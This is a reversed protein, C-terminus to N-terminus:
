EINGVGSGKDKNRLEKIRTEEKIIIKKAETPARYEQRGISGIKEVLADTVAFGASAATTSKSIDSTMGAAMTGFTLGAGGSVITETWGSAMDKNANSIKSKLEKVKEDYGSLFDDDAKAAKREKTKEEKTKQKEATQALNQSAQSLNSTAQNLQALVAAVAATDSSNRSTSTPANGTRIANVGDDKYSNYLEKYEEHKKAYQDYKDAGNKYKEDRTDEYKEKSGKHINMMNQSEIMGQKAEKMSTLKDEVGDIKRSEPMSWSINSGEGQGVGQTGGPLGGQPNRKGDVRGQVIGKAKELDKLDKKAERRTKRAGNIKKFNGAVRNTAMKAMALTAMTSGYTESVGKLMSSELGFFNRVFGELKMLM